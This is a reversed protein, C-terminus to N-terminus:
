NWTAGLWADSSWSSGSWTSGSWTSGSWTSGSWTSGSWTSGSWTSGSWTSGSWTSGSWTSGSWTSGSWTSGSWTSGSWTSGSWTSGNYVGGSWTSGAEEASGMASSSWHAGFIDQEGTLAVGNLAVHGTGRAQELSGAGSSPGFSQSWTPATATLAGPLQVLGAGAFNPNGIKVASAALVGKVQDPTLGPRASLLDAVVGSVV